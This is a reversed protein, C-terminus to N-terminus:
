SRIPRNLMANNLLENDDNTVTMSKIFRDYVYTYFSACKDTGTPTTHRLFDAILNEFDITSTRFRYALRYLTEFDIIIPLTLNQKGWKYSKYMDIFEESLMANVGLASFTRDTTVIVPFVLEVDAADNDVGSLLNEDFMRHIARILQGLGKYEKKAVNHKCLKKRIEDEIQSINGSTKPTNAFIVDKYEFVYARKASRIYFDPGGKQKGYLPELQAGDVIKDAWKEAIYTLLPYLLNPESFDEGFRSMIDSKDKVPKNDIVPNNDWMFNIFDRKLGNYFKDIFLNINLLILGGRSDSLFFHDRLYDMNGSSWLSTCDSPEVIFQQLFSIVAPHLNSLQLHCTQILPSFADFLMLEYELWNQVGKQKLYLDLYKRYDANSECYKFFVASKYMQDQFDKHLKFEFVPIDILLSAQIETLSSNFGRAQLDTWYQNCWLFTKYIRRIEDSTLSRTTTNHLQLAQMFFAFCGHNLFLLYDNGSIMQNKLRAVADPELYSQMESIFRQQTNIDTQAFVVQHQRQAIYTIAPITPIDKLLDLPDVSPYDDYVM